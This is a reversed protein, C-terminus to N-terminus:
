DEVFGTVVGSVSDISDTLHQLGSMDRRMVFSEVTPVDEAGTEVQIYDTTELYPLAVADLEIPTYLLQQLNALLRENVIATIKDLTPNNMNSLVYNNSMDYLSFESGTNDTGTFITAEQKKEDSDIYSYRIAQVPLMDYEDWWCSEYKGRDITEVVDKTLEAVKYGGSTKDPVIFGGAMEFYGDVLKKFDFANKRAQYTYQRGSYNAKGEFAPKVKITVDDLESAEAAPRTLRYMKVDSFPADVEHEEVIVDGGSQRKEMVRILAKGPGYFGIASADLLPAWLALHIGQDTTRNNRSTSVYPYFVMEDDLATFRRNHTADIIPPQWFAGNSTLAIIRTTANIDVSQDALIQTITKGFVDTLVENLTQFYTSDPNRTMKIKYVDTDTYIKTGSVTNVGFVCEKLGGYVDVYHEGYSVTNRGIRLPVSPSTYPAYLNGTFNLGDYVQEADWGDAIGPVNGYIMKTLNFDFNPSLGYATLETYVPYTGKWSEFAPMSDNNGEGWFRTYATVKRHTMEGASRPCSDVVFRGLPISYYAFPLDSDESSVYAGDYNGAEIDEIESATLSSADVDWFCFIVMQFIDEVGVTEFTLKSGEALGFSVSSRSCVSETFTVSGGVIDRYTIDAREGNPFHARFNKMVSDTKWLSKVVEPINLM